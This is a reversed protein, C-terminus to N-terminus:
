LLPAGKRVWQDFNFMGKRFPRAREFPARAREFPALAREFPALAREFPARGRLLPERERRDFLSGLVYSPHLFLWIRVLKYFSFTSEYV